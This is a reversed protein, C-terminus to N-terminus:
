HLEEEGVQQKKIIRLGYFFFFAAIFQTSEIIGEIYPEELLLDDEFPLLILELIISISITLFALFIFFLTKQNIKKYSIFTYISLFTFGVLLIIQIILIIWDNTLTISM